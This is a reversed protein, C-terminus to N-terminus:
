KCDVLVVLLIPHFVPRFEHSMSVWYPGGPMNGALSSLGPLSPLIEATRRSSTAQTTVVVPHPFAGLELISSSMSPSTSSLLSRDPAPFQMKRSPGAEWFLPQYTGERMAESAPIEVERCLPCTAILNAILCGAEFCPCACGAVVLFSRTM